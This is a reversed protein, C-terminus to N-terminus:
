VPLAPRPSRAITQFPLSSGSSRVVDGSDIQGRKVPLFKGSSDMTEAIVNRFVQCLRQEQTAVRAVLSSIIAAFFDLAFFAVALFDVAFFDLARFDTAFFVVALFDVAFFDAPFDVLLRVSIAGFASM